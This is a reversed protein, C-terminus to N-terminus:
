ADQQQPQLADLNKALLDQPWSQDTGAVKTRRLAHCPQRLALLTTEPVDLQQLQEM